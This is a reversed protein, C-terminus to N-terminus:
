EPSPPHLHNALKQRLRQIKKKWAAQTGGMQRAMHQMAEESGLGRDVVLGAFYKLVDQDSDPLCHLAQNLDAELEVISLAPDIVDPLSVLDDLPILRRQNHTLSKLYSERVKRHIHNQVFTVVNTRHFSPQYQFVAEWLALAGDAHLEETVGGKRTYYRVEKELVPWFVALYQEQALTQGSRVQLVTQFDIIASVAPPTIGSLMQIKHWLISAASPTNAQTLM